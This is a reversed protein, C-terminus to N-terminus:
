GGRARAQPLGGAGDGLDAAAEAFGRGGAAQEAFARRPGPLAGFQEGAAEVLGACAAFAGGARELAEGRARLPEGLALPDGRAGGVVEREAEAGQQGVEGGLAEAAGAPEGSAQLAGGGAIGDSAGAAWSASTRAETREAM